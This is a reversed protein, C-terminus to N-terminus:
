KKQKSAMIIDEVEKEYYSLNYMQIGEEPHLHIIQRVFKTDPHVYGEKVLLNQYVSLQLGYQSIACDELHAIPGLGNQWRNETTIKKNTKWDLIYVVGTKPDKMLLDITGALALSESFVVQETAIFELQQFLNYVKRTALQKVVTEKDYDAPLNQTIEISKPAPNALFYDKLQNLRNQELLTLLLQECYEHIRTGYACAINKNDDWEALKEDILVKVQDTSLVKNNLRLQKRVVKEAVVPADFEQFFDHVLATVSTFKVPNGPIFYLHAEEEFHIETGNPHKTVTTSPM